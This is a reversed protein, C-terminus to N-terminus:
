AAVYLTVGFALFAALVIILYVEDYATMVTEARWGM